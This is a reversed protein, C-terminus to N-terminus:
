MTLLRFTNFMSGLRCVMGKTEPAAYRGIQTFVYSLGGASYSTRGRLERTNASYWLRFRGKSPTPIGRPPGLTMGFESKRELM